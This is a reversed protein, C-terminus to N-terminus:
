VMIQHWFHTDIYRYIVYVPGIVNVHPANSSLLAILQYKTIRFTLLQYIGYSLPAILHTEDFHIIYMPPIDDTERSGNLRVYFGHKSSHM